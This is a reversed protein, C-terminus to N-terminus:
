DKSREVNEKILNQMLYDPIDDNLMVVIRGLIESVEDKTKSEVFEQATQDMVCSGCFAMIATSTNYYDDFELCMKLYDKVKM